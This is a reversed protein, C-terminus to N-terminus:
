ESRNAWGEIWLGRSPVSPDQLVWTRAGRTKLKRALKAEASGVKVIIPAPEGSVEFHIRHIRDNNVSTNTREIQAISADVALGRRGLR